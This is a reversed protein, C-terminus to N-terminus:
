EGKKLNNNKLPCWEPTKDGVPIVMAEDNEETLLCIDEGDYALQKWYDCNLCKLM